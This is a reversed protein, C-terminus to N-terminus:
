PLAFSTGEAMALATSIAFFFKKWTGIIRRVMGCRTWPSSEAPTTRRRGADGSGTNDGATRHAGHQVAGTDVVNQGLGEAGGVRDVDDM